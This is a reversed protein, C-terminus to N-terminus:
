KLAGEWRSFMMMGGLYEDWFCGVLGGGNWPSLDVLQPYTGYFHSENLLSIQWDASDTPSATLARAAKLTTVTATTHVQSYAVLLRGDYDILHSYGGETADVTVWSWDGAAAPANSSALGVMLERSTDNLSGTNYSFAPNGNAQIAVSVRSYMGGGGTLDHIAWDAPSTPTPDNARAFVPRRGLAPGQLFGLVPVGTQLVMVPWLIEGDGSFDHMQYSDWSASGTPWTVRSRCFQLTDDDKLWVFLLNTGNSQLTNGDLEGGHSSWIVTTFLWDASSAPVDETAAAIRINGNEDTFIIALRGDHLTVQPSDAIMDTLYFTNWDSNSLPNTTNAISVVVRKEMNTFTNMVPYVVAPYGNALVVATQEMNDSVEDGNVLHDEWEDVVGSPVSITVSWVDTQAPICSDTVRVTFAYPDIQGQTPTGTIEGAPSLTLGPPLGPHSLNWIVPAAGSATDQLALSYSYPAGVVGAPPPSGTDIALAPCEDQIFISTPFDDWHATECADGVRVTFEYPTAAPTTPTGLLVGVDTLVLGPPLSGAAISWVFPPTGPSAPDILFTDSYAYGVVGAPPAERLIQLPACYRVTISTAWTDTQSPDCNDNAVLTFNSTGSTTPSGTVWGSPAMTLGDPLGDPPVVRWTVPEVGSAIRFQCAYFEGEFALPIAVTNDIVLPECGVLLTVEQQIVQPGELCADIAVLSLPFSGQETPIGSISSDGFDLGAPLAGSIGYAVAGVGGTTRLVYEYLNGNEGPPPENPTVWALTPACGLGQETVGIRYTRSVTQPAAPCSDTATVAVYVNGSDGLTGVLLFQDGQEVIAFIGLGGDETVALSLSPGGGRVPVAERFEQGLYANTRDLPGLEITACAPERVQLLILFRLSLDQPCEVPRAEIHFVYPEDRISGADPIGELQGTAINFTLGSPIDSSLSDVLSYFELNIWPIAASYSQGATAPTATWTQDIPVIADWLATPAAEICLLPCDTVFFRVSCTATATESDGPLWARYSATYQGAPLTVQHAQEVGTVPGWVVVDVPDKEGPRTEVLKFENSVPEDRDLGHEGRLTFTTGVGGHWPLVELSATAPVTPCTTDSGCSGGMTYIFVLAVIPLALLITTIKRM